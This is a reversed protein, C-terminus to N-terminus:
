LQSKINETNTDQTKFGMSIKSKKLLDVLNFNNTFYINLM